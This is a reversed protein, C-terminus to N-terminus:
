NNQAYCEKRYLRLHRLSVTEDTLKRCRLFDAFDIVKPTHFLRWFVVESISLCLRCVWYAGICQTGRFDKFLKGDPCDEVKRGCCECRADRPPPNIYIM